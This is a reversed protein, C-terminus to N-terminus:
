PRNMRAMEYIIEIQKPTYLHGPTVELYEAIKELEEPQPLAHNNELEAIRARRVGAHDALAQQSAPKDGREKLKERYFKVGNVMIEEWEGKKRNTPM